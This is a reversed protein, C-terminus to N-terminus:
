IFITRFDRGPPKRRDNIMKLRIIKINKKQKKYKFFASETEISKISNMYKQIWVGYVESLFQRVRSTRHHKTFVHIFDNNWYKDPQKGWRLGCIVEIENKLESKKWM